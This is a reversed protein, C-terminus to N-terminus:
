RKMSSRRLLRRWRKPTRSVELPWPHHGPVLAEKTHRSNSFKFTQQGPSRLLRPRVPADMLTRHHRWSEHQAITMHREGSLPWLTPLSPYNTKPWPHNIGKTLHWGTKMGSQSHLCTLPLRVLISCSIHYILPYSGPTCTQACVCVCVCAPSWFLFRLKFYVNTMRSVALVGIVM